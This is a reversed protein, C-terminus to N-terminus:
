RIRDGVIGTRNLDAIPVGAEGEKLIGVIQSETSLPWRTGSTPVVVEQPRRPHVSARQASHQGVLQEFAQRQAGLHELQTVPRLARETISPTGVMDPMSLIHHQIEPALRLLGLIQTVRAM